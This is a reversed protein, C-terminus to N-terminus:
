SGIDKMGERANKIFAQLRQAGPERDVEWDVPDLMPRVAAALEWFHLNASETGCANEYSRLFEGAAASLGMLNMNMLAYAVDIMPDGQAAEEWDLVASIEGEHWLINGSWYDIHVLAPKVPKLHRFGERAMQWVEDGGPYAQMYAPADEGKIFWAAEPNADLLFDHPISELPVAHIRRLLLALKRAWALPDSPSELILNGPMFRTVIGPVGLLAGTDDLYLPEPSPIAFRNILELTKFERRAKEGRDYDGFVQYRRVAYKLTKGDPLRAEVCHTHNSFSGPLLSIGLLQSGPAIKGLLALATEEPLHDLPRTEM